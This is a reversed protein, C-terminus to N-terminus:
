PVLFYASFFDSVSTNFHQCCNGIWKSDKKLVSFVKTFESQLLSNLVKVVQLYPPASIHQSVMNALLVNISAPAFFEILRSINKETVVIATIEDIGATLIEM